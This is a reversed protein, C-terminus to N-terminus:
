GVVLAPCGIGPSIPSIAMPAGLLTTVTGLAALLSPHTNSSALSLGGTIVGLGAAIPDIVAALGGATLPTAPGLATLAASLTALYGVLLNVAQETAMAHLVPINGASGISVNGSAAIGIDTGNVKIITQGWWMSAYGEETNLVIQGLGDADQIAFGSPGFQLGTSNGDRITVNGTEDIGLMAGTIASRIMFLSATETIHPSRMRRFSLNNLDTDKGGVKPPFKDIANNLRGIICPSIESGEAMVVIVEDGGVFPEWTGEFPGALASAVRCTVSRNSPHLRIEVLPGLAEDFTVSRGEEVDSDLEVTGYCVWTRPDTITGQAMDQLMATDIINLRSKRPM